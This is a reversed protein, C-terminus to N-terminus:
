SKDGENRLEVSGPLWPTMAPLRCAADHADYVCVRVRQLARERAVHSPEHEYENLAKLANALLSRIRFNEESM